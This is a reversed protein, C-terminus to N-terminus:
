GAIGEAAKQDSSVYSDKINSLFSITNAILTELSSNITQYLEAIDELENVTKGGGVTPPVSKQNSICKSKLSQLKNISSDLEVINIKIEAM